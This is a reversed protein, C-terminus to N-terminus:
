TAYNIMSIKVQSLCTSLLVGMVGGAATLAMAEVLFGFLIGRRSFGLARL